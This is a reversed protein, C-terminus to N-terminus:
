KYGMRIKHQASQWVYKEENHLHVSWKDAKLDNESGYKSRCPKLKTKFSFIEEEKQTGTM